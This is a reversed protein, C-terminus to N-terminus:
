SRAIRDRHEALLEDIIPGVETFRKMLALVDMEFSGPDISIWGQMLTQPGYDVSVNPWDKQVSKLRKRFESAFAISTLKYGNLQRLKLAHINYLARNKRASKEDLWVSFFIGTQNPVTQMDDNTWSAKQLKLVPYQTHFRAKCILSKDRRTGAEYASKIRQFYEVFSHM